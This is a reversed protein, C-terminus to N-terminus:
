EIEGNIRARQITRIVKNYIRMQHQQLKEYEAKTLDADLKQLKKDFDMMTKEDLKDITLEITIM